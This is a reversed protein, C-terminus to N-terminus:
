MALLTKTDAKERVLYILASVVLLPYSTGYINNPTRIWGVEHGSKPTRPHSSIFKRQEPPVGDFVKSIQENTVGM